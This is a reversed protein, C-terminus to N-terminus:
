PLFSERFIKRLDVSGAEGELGVFPYNLEPEKVYQRYREKVFGYICSDRGYLRYEHASLNHVAVLKRFDTYSHAFKLTLLGM